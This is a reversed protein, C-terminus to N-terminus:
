RDKLRQNGSTIINLLDLAGLSLLFHLAYLYTFDLTGSVYDFYQNQITIIM